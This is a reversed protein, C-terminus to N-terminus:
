LCRHLAASTIRCALGVREDQRFPIDGDNSIKLGDVELLVDGRELKTSWPGLPAVETVFVGSDCKEMGLSGRYAASELFHYRFGLQVLGSYTGRTSFEFLFRQIVPIPIVYGVNTVGGGGYARAVGVVKNTSDFVPGGSNGPNVAADIQISLLPSPGQSTYRMCDIRSVVGKTVCISKGGAPFGVVHVPSFNSPVDGELELLPMGDWFDEDPVEVLALDCDNGICKVRAKFKSTSGQKQVRLTSKKSVVVHANTLIYKEEGVGIVLGTGSGTHIGGSTWPVCYNPLTCSVFIQVTSRLSTSQQQESAKAKTSAFASDDSSADDSPTDYPHAELEQERRVAAL